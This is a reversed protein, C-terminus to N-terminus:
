GVSFPECPSTSGSYNGDGSYAAQFSYSGAGLPGETNSKPVNGSADLTVTGAGTGSGSCSGNTFFAYTVTGTPVVGDQKGSVTSTDYASSGTPETGAWPANTAADFVVTATTTAAKGVTFPECPSTVPGIDIGDGSYTAQYSYSGATPTFSSSNPVQGNTVTVTQTNSATGSCTGNTFRSYTVTGGATSAANTLTASDNVTSGLPVNCPSTACAVGNVDVTTSISPTFFIASTALARDQAGTSAGDLTALAMHYPSGSVFSASNGVGWDRQSSIHGGWAIVISQSASLASPVSFKLSVTTSCQGTGSPANDSTITAPGIGSGSPGFLDITGPQQSGAFTGGAGGCGQEGGPGSGFNEAPTPTTAAPTAPSTQQGSGNYASGCQSQTMQGALVLDQCPSNNNAHIITGGLSTPTPSTTETADYSGLYDLAHGGSHVTDYTFVLTHTGASIGSIVARYAIFEGERWHSKSGNSNGNVWNKYSTSAGGNIGSIAVSAANINSGICPQPTLPSVMGNTCQSLSASGNAAAAPQALMIAAPATMTALMAALTVGRFTRRLHPFQVAM